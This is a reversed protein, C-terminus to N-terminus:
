GEKVEETFFLQEYHVCVGNSDRKSKQARGGDQGSTYYNVCMGYCLTNGGARWM